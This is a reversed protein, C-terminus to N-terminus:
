WKEAGGSGERCVLEWYYIRTPKYVNTRDHNTTKQSKRSEM